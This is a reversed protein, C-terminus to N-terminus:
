RIWAYMSRSRLLKDGRPARGLLLGAKTPDDFMKWLLGEFLAREYGCRDSPSRLDGHTEYSTASCGGGCFRQVHCTACETINETRRGSLDQLVDSRGILTAIDNTRLLESHDAIMLGPFEVMTDCPYLNGNWDIGLKSGCGAGCPSRLCMFPNSRSILHTVHNALTGEVIKDDHVRNHEVIRDALKLFEEAMRTEYDRHDSDPRSSNEAVQRGQMRLPRLFFQSLGRSFLYEFTPIVDEPEVVTSITSFPVENRRLLDLKGELLRLSGRGLLTPRNRDHIEPPGDLSVCVQVAYKKIFDVVEPNIPTGNTMLGFSVRHSLEPDLRDTFDEVASRIADFHLLPEGGSFLFVFKKRPFDRLIRIFLDALDGSDPYARNSDADAFCYTCSLNCDKNKIVVLMEPFNEYSGLDRHADPQRALHRVKRRGEEANNGAGIWWRGSGPDIILLHPGRRTEYLEPLAPAQVVGM